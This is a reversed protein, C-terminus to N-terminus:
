HDLKRMGFSIDAIPVSSSEVVIFSEVQDVVFFVVVYEQSHSLTGSEDVFVGNEVREEVFDGFHDSLKLDMIYLREM